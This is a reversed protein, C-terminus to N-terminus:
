KAIASLVADVDQPTLLGRWVKEVVGRGGILVTQPTERLDYRWKEAVEIRTIIAQPSISHDAIYRESVHDTIDAYTVQTGVPSRHVLDKWNPWNQTCVKCGVSFLLLLSRDSLRVVIPNGYPSTGTLSRLELGPQPGRSNETQDLTKLLHTNERQLVVNVVLLGLSLGGLSGSVNPEFEVGNVRRASEVISSNFWFYRVM